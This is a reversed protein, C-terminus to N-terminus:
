FSIHILVICFVYPMSVTFVDDFHSPSFSQGVLGSSASSDFLDPTFGRSGFREREPRRQPSPSEQRKSQSLANLEIFM